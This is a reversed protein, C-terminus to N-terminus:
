IHILSLNIDVGKQKEFNEVSGWDQAVLMVESCLNGQWQSRPGIEASDFLGDRIQSPNVLGQCLACSKRSLVLEDYRARKTSNRKQIAEPTCEVRKSSVQKDQPPEASPIATVSQSRRVAHKEKAEAGAPTLRFYAGSKGDRENFKEILGPENPHLKCYRDGKVFYELHSVHASSPADPTPVGALEALEIKRIPREKPGPLFANIRACKTGLGCGLFDKDTPNHDDM